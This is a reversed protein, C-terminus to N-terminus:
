VRFKSHKKLLSSFILVRDVCEEICTGVVLMDAGAEYLEAATEKDRIGGGVILPVNINKSVTQVMKSSVAKSAGSGAELYILKLGLLEGAKATISAIKPKNHPIPNTNSMYSAATPSGGDILLYGTSVVELSANKLFPVAEVHKGILLDANRGSILSLFLLVDAKADIQIVSGPFLVLPISSHNKLFLVVKNMNQTSLLSGGVFFCSIHGKNAYEVLQNLYQENAKDPDILVALSKVGEKKNELCKSYFNM